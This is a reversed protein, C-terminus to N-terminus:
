GWLISQVVTRDWRVSGGTNILQAYTMTTSQGPNPNPWPNSVSPWPDRIRYVVAGTSDLYYGYIVVAHGNGRKGFSDYSGLAAIVPRGYRLYRMLDYESLTNYMSEYAYRDYTAFQAGAAYEEPLGGENIIAGKVERVIDSQTVTSSPVATRAVMQACAAWCWRDQEQGIQPTNLTLGSEFTWKMQPSVGDWTWLQLAAGNSQSASDVDIVMNEHQACMPMLRYSGDGNPIIRWRQTSTNNSNYVWLDQGNVRNGGPVDLRLNLNHAPALSYWGEAHYVVRWRQNTGGNLGHQTVSTTNGGFNTVDMYKGSNVSRIFYYAGSVIGPTPNPAYYDYHIVLYPKTSNVDTDTGHESSCISNYDNISENTYCVEFGYNSSAATSYRYMDRIATTVGFVYKGSITGSLPM